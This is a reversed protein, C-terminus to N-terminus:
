YGEWKIGEKGKIEVYPVKSDSKRVEGIIKSPISMEIATDRAREASELSSHISAFGLGMNIKRYMTETDYESEEAFLLHIPKPEIPNDIFYSINEGMRNFNHLGNGTINVAGIHNNRRRMKVMMRSYIRTPTLLADGITQDTGPIKDSLTFKGRYHEKFEPRSEVDPVLLVGRAGTYGNSHLGTSEYGVIVNGPQPNMSPIHDRKIWATMGFGIDLGHGPKPGAIMEELSATEIKGLNIEPAGKIIDAVNCLKLAKVIGFMLEGMKEEEIKPQTAFYINITDPIVTGLPAFDNANMAVGDQGVTTYNNMWAALFLKTGVGDETSIKYWGPHVLENKTMVSFMGKKGVHRNTLEPPIQEKGDRIAIVERKEYDEIESM